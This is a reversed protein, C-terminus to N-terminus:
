DKKLHDQMWSLPRDVNFFVADATGEAGRVDMRDYAHNDKSILSQKTVKLGLTGLLSYEEAVAIVVYANDPSKGDGSQLISRLLGLATMRHLEASATDGLQRFCIDDVLHADIEVYDVALVEAANRTAAACDQARYAKNMAQKLANLGGYYPDYAPTTTFAYRLAQYDLDRDGRKARALLVDYSPQTKVPDQKPASCAGIILAAAVM